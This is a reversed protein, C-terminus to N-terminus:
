TSLFMSCVVCVYVRFNQTKKTNKQLHFYNMNKNNKKKEKTIKNSVGLSVFLNLILSGSLEGVIMMLTIIIIIFKTATFDSAYEWKM